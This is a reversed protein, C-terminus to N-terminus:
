IKDFGSPYPGTNPKNVPKTVVEPEKTIGKKVREAVLAPEARKFLNVMDFKDDVEDKGFGNQEPPPGNYVPRQPEPKRKETNKSQSLVYYELDIERIRRMTGVMTYPIAGERCKRIVTMQSVRLIDAAESVKLLRNSDM